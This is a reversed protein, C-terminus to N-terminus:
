DWGLMFFLANINQPGTAGSQVNHGASGMPHLFVVEIYCSGAHKKNFRFQDWGCLTDRACNISIV